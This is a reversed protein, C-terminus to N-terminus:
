RDYRDLKVSRLLLAFADRGITLHPAHPHKSDRIGIGTAVVAVEVCEGHGGGSRSSRRWAPTTTGTM